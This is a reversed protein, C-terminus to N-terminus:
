IVKCYEKGEMTMSVTIGVPIYNLFDSNNGLAIFALFEENVTATM